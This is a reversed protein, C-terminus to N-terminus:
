DVIRDGKDDHCPYTVPFASNAWARDWSKSERESSELISRLTSLFLGGTLFGAVFSLLCKLHKEMPTGGMM